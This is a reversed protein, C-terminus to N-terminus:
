AAALLKTAIFCCDISALNRRSAGCAIGSGDSGTHPRARHSRLTAARAGIVRVHRLRHVGRGYFRPELGRHNRRAGGGPPHAPPILACAPWAVFVESHPPNLAKQFCMITKLSGGEVALGKDKVMGMVGCFESLGAASQHCTLFMLLAPNSAHVDSIVYANERERSVGFHAM